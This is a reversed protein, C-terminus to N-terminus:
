LPKMTLHYQSSTHNHVHDFYGMQIFFVPIKSCHLIDAKVYPLTFQKAKQSDVAGSFRSRNVHQGGQKWGIVTGYLYAIMSKALVILFDALTNTDYRLLITQIILQADPLIQQYM